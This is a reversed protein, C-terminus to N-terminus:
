LRIVKAIPQHLYYNTTSQITQIYEHVQVICKNNPSYKYSYICISKNPIVNVNEPECKVQKSMLIRELLLAVLLVRQLIHRM